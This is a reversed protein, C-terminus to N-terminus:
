GPAPAPTGPASPGTAPAAQRAEQDPQAQHRIIQDRLDLPDAADVDAPLRTTRPGKRAYCRGSIGRWASWGPFERQVDALTPGPDPATGTSM